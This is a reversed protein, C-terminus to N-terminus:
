RRQEPKESVVISEETMQKALYKKAEMVADIGMKLDLLNDWYIKAESGVGGYRLTFSNPKVTEMYQKTTEM